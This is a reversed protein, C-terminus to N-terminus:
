PWGISLPHLHFEVRMAVGGLFFDENPVGYPASAFSRTTGGCVVHCPMARRLDPSM